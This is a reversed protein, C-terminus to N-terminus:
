LEPNYFSSKHLTVCQIEGRKMLALKTEPSLLPSFPSSPFPLSSFKFYTLVLHKMKDTQNSKWM